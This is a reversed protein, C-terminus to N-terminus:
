DDGGFSFSFSSSNLYFINLILDGYHNSSSRIFGVRNLYSHFGNLAIWFDYTGWVLSSDLIINDLSKILRVRDELNFVSRSFEVQFNRDVNKKKCFADKETNINFPMFNSPSSIVCDEGDELIKSLSCDIISSFSVSSCITTSFCKTIEKKITDSLQDPYLVVPNLVKVSSKKWERGYENWLNEDFYTITKM